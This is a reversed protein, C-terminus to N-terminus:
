EQDAPVELWSHGAYTYILRGESTLETIAEKVEKKDVGLSRALTRALDSPKLKKHSQAVMDFVQQKLDERNM